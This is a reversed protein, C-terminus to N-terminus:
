VLPEGGDIGLSAGTMFTADLAFLVARAIDEPAGIRRAPNTASRTAFLTAKAEPGLADYAGTDITGPSVANVRIPALEVALGRVIADLAANTGGVALMGPMVKRASAGSLFVFSGDAPMLPAFHRALFIPAIAKVGFSALVAERTLTEVTGRARASATSVVHDVHGLRAALAAISAEDTVDVEDRGAVVVTAGAKTAVEVVAHAIGSSRGIVLVTRNELAM